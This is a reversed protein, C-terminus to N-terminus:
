TTEIWKEVFYKFSKNNRKGTAVSFRNLIGMMFDVRPKRKPIMRNFDNKSLNETNGLNRGLMEQCCRRDLGCLYWCEIERMVVAINKPHITKKLLTVTKAKSATVCQALNIDQVYIYDAGGRQISKIMRERIIPKMQSYKVLSVRSYKQRFKPVLVNEFFRADDVGELFIYLKYPM